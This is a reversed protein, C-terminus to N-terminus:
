NEEGSAPAHGRNDEIWADIKEWWDFLWEMREPFPGPIEGPHVYWTKLVITNKEALARWLQKVTILEDLGTHAVFLVGAQPSATVAAFIGGPRPALVHRMSRAREALAGYGDETLQQIRSEKRRPTFKGGEPFVLLADGEGMEGAMLAIREAPKTGHAYVLGTQFPTPTLVVTPLQHAIVDLVPDWQLMDKMVIRPNRHFQNLLVHVMIFSDGPGAHRSAVIVPAGDAEAPPPDGADITLRLVWSVQGFLVQLFRGILRYHLRRFVRTRIGWGFGSAIWTGFLVVLAIAEWVLVFVLLWLARPLRGLRPLRETLVVLLLLLPLTWVLLVAAIMVAPAVTLRRIWRPPMTM